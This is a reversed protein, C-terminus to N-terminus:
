RGARVSGSGSPVRGPWKTRGCRRGLVEFSRGTRDPQRPRCCHRHPTFGLLAAWSALTSSRRPSGAPPQLLQPQVEVVVLVFMHVVQDAFKNWDGLGVPEAPDRDMSWSKGSPSAFESLSNYRPSSGSWATDTSRSASPGNQSWCAGFSHLGPRQGPSEQHRLPLQRCRGWSEETRAGVFYLPSARLDPQFQTLTTGVGFRAEAARPLRASADVDPEFVASPQSRSSSDM